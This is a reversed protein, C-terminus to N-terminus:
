FLPQMPQRGNRVTNNSLTWKNRQIPPRNVQREGAKHRLISQRRSAIVEQQTAAMPHNM